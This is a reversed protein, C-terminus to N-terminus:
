SSIFRVQPLRWHRKKLRLLGKAKLRCLGDTVGKSGGELLNGRARLADLVQKKLFSRNNLGDTQNIINLLTDEVTGNKERLFHGPRNNQM